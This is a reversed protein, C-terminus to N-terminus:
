PIEKMWIQNGAWGTGPDNIQANGTPMYIGLCLYHTGAAVQGVNWTQSASLFGSPTTYVLGRCDNGAVCSGDFVLSVYYPQVTQNTTFSANFGVLVYNAGTTFSVTSGTVNCGAWAADTLVGGSLNTTKTSAYVSTTQTTGDPFVLRDVNLDGDVTGGQTLDVKRISDAASRFNENLSSIDRDSTIGRLHFPTDAAHAPSLLFALLLVKM